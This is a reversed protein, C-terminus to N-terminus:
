PDEYAGALCSFARSLSKSERCYYLVGIRGHVYPTVSRRGSGRLNEDGSHEEIALM